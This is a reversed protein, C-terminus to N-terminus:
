IKKEQAEKLRNLVETTTLVKGYRATKLRPIPTKAVDTTSPNQQKYQLLQNSFFGIIDRPSFSNSSTNEIDISFSVEQSISSSSAQLNTSLSSHTPEEINPNVTDSTELNLENNLAANNEESNDNHLNTYYNKLDITDFENEPFKTKDHPFLGTFVFGSVTEDINVLLAGLIESFKCKTLRGITKGVMQKGFKILLKNWETKLPGFVCKDLPQIRDTLHSPFKVLAINKDIALNLNRLSIHSCHGDFLLVATQNPKNKLIRLTEINRIFMTEFWNFFLPEEMWDNKSTSYLTGPYANESTWRAQVASGKFLMFPPLFSGNASIYALVSISERGSGGSVRSLTM